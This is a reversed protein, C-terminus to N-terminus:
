RAQENLGSLHENAVPLASECSAAESEPRYPCLIGDYIQKGALAASELHAKKWHWCCGM